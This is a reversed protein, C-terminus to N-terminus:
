ITGDPATSAGPVLQFQPTLNSRGYYGWGIEGTYSFLDNYARLMGVAVRGGWGKTETTSSIDSLSKVNFHFGEIVPWTYSAEGSLFPIFPRAVPAVAGMKSDYVDHHVAPAADDAFLHTPSLAAFVSAHQQEQSVPVVQQPQRARHRAHKVAVPHTKVPQFEQTTAAQQKHFLGGFLPAHRVADVPASVLAPIVETEKPLVRHPQSSIMLAVEEKETVTPIPGVRVVYLTSKHSVSVPYTTQSQLRKKFKYANAKKTFSGAQVYSGHIAQAYSVIYLCAGGVIVGGVAIRKVILNLRTMPTAFCGRIAQLLLSCIKNQM